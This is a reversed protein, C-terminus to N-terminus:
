LKGKCRACFDTGASDITAIRGEADHM